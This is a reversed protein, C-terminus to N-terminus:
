KRVKTEIMEVVKDWHTVFKSLSADNWDELKTGKPVMGKLVGCAELESRKVGGAKALAILKGLMGSPEVPSLAPDAGDTTPDAKPTEKTPETKFLHAISKFDLPMEDKLTGTRDKADWCPHHSTRLVRSGGQAKAKGNEQEVVLTKYNAFLVLDAWDKISGSARKDLKLEWRDYAGAEDPQEFKRMWAHAIFVIHMGQKLRLSDLLDLFRTFCEHSAVWGKGYGFDEIGAKGAKDCVHRVILKELSDAADIVLTGAGHSDKILEKIIQEVGAFTDPTETRMVDLFSTGKEIDIFLPYPWKAALTSKGIGEPGYIVAKLPAAQKGAIINM